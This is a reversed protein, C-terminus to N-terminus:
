QSEKARVSSSSSSSSAAAGDNKINSKTKIKQDAFVMNAGILLSVLLVIGLITSHNELRNKAM